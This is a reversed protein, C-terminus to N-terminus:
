RMTELIAMAIRDRIGAVYDGYASAEKGFWLGYVLSVPSSVTGPPTSDIASIKTLANAQYITADAGFHQYKRVSVNPSLAVAGGSIHSAYTTLSGGDQMSVIPNSALSRTLIFKISFIDGATADTVTYMETIAEAFVHIPLGHGTFAHEFICYLNTTDPASLTGFGTYKGESSNTVSSAIIASTDVKGSKVTGDTNLGANAAVAGGAVTSAAQNSITGSFNQTSSPQFPGYQTIPGMIYGKANTGPAVKRWKAFGFTYYKTPDVQSLIRMTTSLDTVDVWLVGGRENATPADPGGLTVAANTTNVALMWLIADFNNDDAPDSSYDWNFTVKYTVTGDPHLTEQTLGSISQGSSPPTLANNDNMTLIQQLMVDTQDVDIRFTRQFVVGDYDGSGTADITLEGPSEAATLGASVTVSPPDSGNDISYTLGDPNGGTALTLLFASSVDVGEVTKVIFEFAAPAYSTVTGATNAPVFVRDPNIYADVQFRLPPTLNDWYANSTTPWAPPANGSGPVANIYVWRSGDELDVINGERYFTAADYRGREVLDAYYAIEDTSHVKWSRAYGMEIKSFPPKTGLEISKTVRPMQRQQADLTLSPTGIGPRSVFLEGLLSIGAQANCPAALRAAFDLLTEQETLYVGIRGQNTTAVAAVATDLDSLSTTDVLASAGANTAVRLIIEGTKRRWTGDYKDGDVDGTIVGVPPAGLRVMGEALCTGWRGAPIAAAVLAAYNAYDGFSAGFDSGREYLKTVAEIAGYASFQFVSNTADILIPEVNFCRGLLWPKPKDKLDAGGEDAGTGAYVETLIDANFPEANIEIPLTIRNREARPNDGVLGEFVQTWPWTDGARGSWIKITAGVWVFRRANAQQPLLQDLQLSLSGGAAAAAGDFDGKFLRIALRANESIAPRWILDNLGTVRHDNVNTARVTKRTGDVPDLPAIEVLLTNYSPTTIGAGPPFPAESVEVTPAFFTQNNTLLSPRLDNIITITPAYFTQANTLLSPSLTVGGTTITPAYFTQGNTLLGPTLVIGQTVTPAFFTQSNTLLGPALGVTTTITPAHFTQSNTLLAPALTYSTTIVPGHFTQSNTLLGPTLDQSTQYAPRIVLTFAAWSDTTSGGSGFAAPDYSGSTWSTYLGLAVASSRVIGFNNQAIVDSLSAHSFNVSTSAARAGAAGAIIWAGAIHPTVAPPNAAVDNIGTAFQISINDFPVDWDVNRIVYVAVAGADDNTANTSTVKFSNDGSRRKYAVRMNTDYTDSAFQQEGLYNYPVDSADTITLASIAGSSVQEFVVLILDDDALAANNITLGTTLSVTATSATTVNQAKGAVLSLSKRPPDTSEERLFRYGNERLLASSGDERLIITM